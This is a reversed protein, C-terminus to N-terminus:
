LEVATVTIGSLSVASATSVSKAALDIWYATGPTLGTVVSQISFPIHIDAATVTTPNTYEQPTGVQTGALAANTTPATSTGWSVQYLIGDNATTTTGIIYGSIIILIKTSKAPTISGALGQMKYVSTSNPATPASPTSQATINRDVYATTALRTSNNNATQTTAVTNSNAAFSVSNFAGDGIQLNNSGDVVAFTRASGGTDKAQFVGGQPMTIVPTTGNLTISGAFTANLSGDLVLTNSYANQATGTTGAKTTRLYIAGGNGTGTSASGNIVLDAGNTNSTGAVVNQVSITQSVPSAADAAGLAINAAANRRLITDANISLGGSTSSSVFNQGAANATVTTGTIAAAASGGIAPPSALYTSFGTGSVTSSASLTTFSGAAAASGGIAPPSALYTSFGTGSVTSSASLTTAAVTGATTPGLNVANLNTVTAGLSVATAGFTITSNALALNPVAEYTIANAGTVVPVTNTSPSAGYAVGNLKACTIVGANTITCDGSPTVATATGSVGVWIKGDALSPLAASVSAWTGDGRAYTSSSPTGTFGGMNAVGINFPGGIVDNGFTNSNAFVPASTLCLLALAALLHNRIKM